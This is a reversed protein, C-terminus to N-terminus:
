ECMPLTQTVDPPWLYQMDPLKYYQDRVNLHLAGQM